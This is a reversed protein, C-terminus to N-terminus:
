FNKQKRKRIIVVLTILVLGMFGIILLPFLINQDPKKEQSSTTNQNLATQLIAKRM